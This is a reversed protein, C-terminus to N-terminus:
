LEYRVFNKVIIKEGLKAIYDNILDKIIRSDDKIWPQSLLCAEKKFKELKGEIIKKKIEEPKNEEQMQEEFIEREKDLISQDIFSEDIFRPSMSAIQLLIEHSLEKFADGRAVFDTECSLEVMVGVSGGQHIYADIIGSSVDRNMKKAAIAQGQKKLIEKAKEIDGCSEELAKKCQALSIDTEKRLQKVLDISVM